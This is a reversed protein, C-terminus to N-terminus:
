EPLYHCIQAVHYASRNLWRYGDLLQDLEAASGGQELSHKILRSRAEHSQEDFETSISKLQTAEEMSPRQKLTAPLAHHLTEALGKLQPSNVLFDIRSRDALRSTLRDLHDLAHLLRKVSSENSGLELAFQQLARIDKNLQTLLDEPLQNRKLAARCNELVQDALTISATNLAAIAVRPSELLKRDPLEFAYPGHSTRPVLHRVLRAFRATFPLVLIVGLINFSTHFAVTVLEKNTHATTPSLAHWGWLYVPLACLAFVGTLLNYFVHSLGTRRSQLSGGLTALFATFTTGVDAGIVMALSQPLTIIDTNLAVLASAITSSSSQTLISILVGLGVFIMTTLLPTHPLDALNIASASNALGEKLYDIGLFLLAFGCLSKGAQTWIGKTLLMLLAGLFVIGLSAAGLKIKFGMLAVIWGTITTGINAGFIVGLAQEFTLLGAGVFGVAAVTTASSSQVVATVSAGTLVGRFPTNTANALWQHLREGAMSKLAGTMIKMGFLFLGLGGLALLWSANM